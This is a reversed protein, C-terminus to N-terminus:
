CRVPERDDGVAGHPHLHALHPPSTAALAAAAEAFRSRAPIRLTGDRPTRPSLPSGIFPKELAPTLQISALPNKHTIRLWDAGHFRLPPRGDESVKIRGIRWAANAAQM